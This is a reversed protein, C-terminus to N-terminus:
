APRYIQSREVGTRAEIERLPEGATYLEIRQRHARLAQCPKRFRPSTPAPCSSVDLHALRRRNM